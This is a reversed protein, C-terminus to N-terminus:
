IFKKCESINNEEFKLLRQGLSVIEKDAEQYKRNNRIIDIVGMTSGQMMMEAIHSASKDTLTKVNIMIYASVKQYLSIDKEEKSKERLIREAEKEIAEYEKYQSNLIDKFEKEEVIDLLQGITETGMQANQYIYNLYEANADM